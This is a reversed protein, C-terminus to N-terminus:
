LARSRPGPYTISLISLRPTTKLFILSALFMSGCLANIWPFLFHSLTFAALPNFLVALTAFAAAWLIKSSRGAEFAVLSASGCIVFQLVVAYHGAPTWFFPAGILALLSIYKM